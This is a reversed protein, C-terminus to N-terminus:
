YSSIWRIWWLKEFSEVVEYYIDDINLQAVKLFLEIATVDKTSKINEVAATVKHALFSYNSHETRDYLELNSTQIAFVNMVDEYRKM